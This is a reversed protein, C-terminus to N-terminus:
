GGAAFHRLLDLASIVGVVTGNELVFLRHVNQRAMEQAVEVASADPGVSFVVPTMLDAARLVSAPTGSALAGRARDYVVIDTRSVVGIPRGADDIIPAASFGTDALFALVEPITAGGHLSVPNPTM